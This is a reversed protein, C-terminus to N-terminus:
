PHPERRQARGRLHRTSNMTVVDAPMAEAEVVRARGLEKAPGAGGSAPAPRAVGLLAELRVLDFRSVTIPPLSANM